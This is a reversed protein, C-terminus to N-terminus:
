LGIRQYIVYRIGAYYTLICRRRKCLAVASNDPCGIRFLGLMTASGYASGLYMLIGDPLADSLTGGDVVDGDPLADSSTGGTVDGDPLVDSEDEEDAWVASPSFGSFATITTVALIVSLIKKFRIM